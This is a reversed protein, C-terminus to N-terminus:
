EEGTIKQQELMEKAFNTCIKDVGMDAYMQYHSTDDMTWIMVKIGHEHAQNVIEGNISSFHSHVWQLNNQIAIDLLAKADGGLICLPIVPDAQRVQLLADLRFSSVVHTNVPPRHDRLMKALRAAGDGAFDKVEVNFRVGTKDTLALTEELTPVKEGAFDANKWAGADLERIQALTLDSIKGNGNTTRDVTTDHMVIIEEDLTHHVDLEISEAGVEVAKLFSLITNEPYSASYGRHAEIIPQKM